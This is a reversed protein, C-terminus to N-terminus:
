NVSWHILGINNISFLEKDDSLLLMCLLTKFCHVVLHKHEWYNFVFVGGWLNGFPLCVTETTGKIVWFLFPLWSFLASLFIACVVCCVCLLVIGFLTNVSTLILYLLVTFLHVRQYHVPTKCWNDGTVINWYVWANLVSWCGGFSTNDSNNGTWEIERDHALFVDLCLPGGSSFM